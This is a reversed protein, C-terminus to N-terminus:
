ISALSLFWFFIKITGINLGINMIELLFATWSRCSDAQVLYRWGQFLMWWRISRIFQFCSESNSEWGHIFERATCDPPPHSTALLDRGQLSFVVTWNRLEATQDATACGGRPNPKRCGQWLLLPVSFHLAFPQALFIGMDTQNECLLHQPLLDPSPNPSAMLLLSLPFSRGKIKSPLLPSLSALVPRSKLGWGCCCSTLVSSLVQVLLDGARWLAPTPCSQVTMSFTCFACGGKSAEMRGSGDWKGM